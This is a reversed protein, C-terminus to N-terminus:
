PRRGSPLDLMVLGTNSDLARRADIGIIETLVAEIVL